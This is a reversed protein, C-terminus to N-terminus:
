GTASDEAPGGPALWAPLPWNLLEAVRGVMWGAEAQTVVGGECLGTHLRQLVDDETVGLEFRKTLATETLMQSLDECLEHRTLLEGHSLLPRVRGPPVYLAVFAPPVVLQNDDSM